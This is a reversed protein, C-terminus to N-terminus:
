ELTSVRSKGVNYALDLMVCGYIIEALSLGVYTGDNHDFYFVMTIECSSDNIKRFSIENVIYRGLNDKWDSVLVANPIEKSFKSSWAGTLDNIYRFSDATRIAEYVCELPVNFFLSKALTKM